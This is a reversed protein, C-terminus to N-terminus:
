SSAPLEPGFCRAYDRCIHCSPAPCLTLGERECLRRYLFKKWKMDGVNRQALPRFNHLLLRNLEGRHRLGLDSWLHDSGGCGAVVITALWAAEEHGVSRHDCLLHYLDNSEPLPQPDGRSTNPGPPHILPLRYRRLMRAFATQGLGLGPPMIGRGQEQGLLMQQILDPNPNSGDLAPLPQTRRPSLPLSLAFM